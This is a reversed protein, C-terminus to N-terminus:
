AQFAYPNRFKSGHRTHISAISSITSAISGFMVTAYPLSLVWSTDVLNVNMISSMVLISFFMVVGFMLRVADFIDLRLERQRLLELTIDHDVSSDFVRPTSTENQSSPSGLSVSYYTESDDDGIIPQSTTM